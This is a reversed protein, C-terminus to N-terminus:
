SGSSLDRLSVRKAQIRGKWVLEACTDDVILDLKLPDVSKDPGPEKWEVGETWAPDDFAPHHVGQFDGWRPRLWFTKGNSLM